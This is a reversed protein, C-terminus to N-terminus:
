KLLETIVNIDELQELQNIHGVLMDMKEASFGAFQACKKAKSACDEFSMPKEPSGKAHLMKQTFNQGDRTSIEAVNLSLRLSLKSAEAEIDPDLVCEVKDVEKLRRADKIATASFDELFVDGSFIASGVTYPISFIADGPTKPRSKAERPNCVNNYAAQGVRLVIKEIEQSSLNNKRVIDLVNNIPCLTFGCSPYPKIALNMIEYRQGFGDLLRNLDHHIGRYYVEYFGAKADLFRKSTGLGNKGLIASLMAARASLGQQLSLTAGGGIDRVGQVNGASQSYALGLANLMQESNFGMLKGATIAGGFSGCVDGVWGSLGSCYDPVMRMRCMVESGIAVASIFDQGSVKGGLEATALAVPVMTPPPQTGTSFHYQNFDLARAMTANVFVADHAPIAAHRLFISSEPKGQWQSVIEFLKKAVPTTSGAIAVGILDVVSKKCATVVEPPLDDYKISIAKDVLEEELSM